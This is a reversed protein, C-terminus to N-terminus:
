EKWSHLRTQVRTLRKELREQEVKLQQLQLTITEVKLDLDDGHINM